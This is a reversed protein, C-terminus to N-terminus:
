PSQGASKLGLEVRLGASQFVASREHVEVLRYDDLTQGIYIMQGGVVAFRSDVSVMVADLQHQNQFLEAARQKAKNDASGAPDHPDATWAADPAFADRLPPMDTSPSQNGLDRLRQSLTVAQAQPDAPLDTGTPATGAGPLSAQTPAADLVSASSEAPGTVDSGIVLRDALLAVGALGLVGALILRERSIKM